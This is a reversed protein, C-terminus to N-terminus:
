SGDAEGTRPTIAPGRATHEIFAGLMSVPPWPAIVIPAEFSAPLTGAAVAAARAVKQAQSDHELAVDEGPEAEAIRQAEAERALRQAVAIDEATLSLAPVSM